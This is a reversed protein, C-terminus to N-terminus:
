RTSYYDEASQATYGPQIIAQSVPQMPDVFERVRLGIWALPTPPVYIMDGEELLMNLELDGEQMMKDADVTIVHRKGEEHSPRIVKVQSRWALFTPKAAALVSLVTDRGTFPMAGRRGVQGFVYIRKSAKKALRVSVVPDRYYKKLLSELKRAIDVPTLGAVKVEGILRLAIKGDPGVTQIEGDIEPASASSIELADPPQVLYHTGSVSAEWHHIFANIDRQSPGCGSGATLTASLILGVVSVRSWHRHGTSGWASIVAPRAARSSHTGALVIPNM